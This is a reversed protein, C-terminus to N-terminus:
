PPLRGNDEWFSKEGKERRGGCAMVGFPDLATVLFSRKDDWGPGQLETVGDQALYVRRHEPLYRRPHLANWLVANALMVAAEFVFFFWEYRLIPSLSMPDLRMGGSTQTSGAAAGFYEVTRYITRVLILFMSAALTALPIRMRPTTINARACRRRFIGALLFFLSIVALQMLLSAKLLADGLKILRDPLLRNSLYSVGVANLMEVISSLIGFTTLVRGPHIPACYPIYYLVAGLIHYNALELIPPSMYILMTSAIYVKIDDYHLAGYARVAFGAAFLACCFPLIATLKFSKYHICQWLHVLGSIAFAIAFFISAGQNPAYFYISGPVPHGDAM